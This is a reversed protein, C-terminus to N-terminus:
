PSSDNLMFSFLFITVSVMLNMRLVPRKECSSFSIYFYLLTEGREGGEGNRPSAQEFKKNQAGAPNSLNIM